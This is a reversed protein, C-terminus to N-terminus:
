KRNIFRVFFEGEMYNNDVPGVWEFLLDISNRNADYGSVKLYHVDELYVEKGSANRGAISSVFTIVTKGSM